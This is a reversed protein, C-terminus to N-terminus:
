KKKKLRSRHTSNDFEHDIEKAMAKKTIKIANKKKHTKPFIHKGGLNWFIEGIDKTLGFYYISFGIMIFLVGGIIRDDRDTILATHPLTTQPTETVTGTVITTTVPV